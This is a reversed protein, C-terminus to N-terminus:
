PELRRPGGRRPWPVTERLGLGMCCGLAQSMALRCGWRGLHPDKNKLVQGPVLGQRVGRLLSGEGRTRGEVEPLHRQVPHRSCSGRNQRLCSSVKTERRGPVQSGGLGCCCLRPFIM